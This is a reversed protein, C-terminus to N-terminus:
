KYKVNRVIIILTGDSLFMNLCAVINVSVWKHLPVKKDVFFSKVAAVGRTTTELPLLTLLEEETSLDEFMMLQCCASVRGVMTSAGLQVDSLTFAVDPGTKEDKFTTNTIITMAGKLVEGDSFGKRSKMVFNAARFSAATFVAM